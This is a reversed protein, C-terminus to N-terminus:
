YAEDRHDTKLVIALHNEETKDTINQISAIKYCPLNCEEAKKKNNM